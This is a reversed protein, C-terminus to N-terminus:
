LLSAGRRIIRCPPCMRGWSHRHCLWAQATSFTFASPADTDDSTWYQSFYYMMGADFRGGGGSCGEFLVDPFEATVTELIRYLGLMYRHAVEAQREPPLLASGVETMNRNMDWKVYSIKAKKLIDSLFSIIYECVDDRSLDLILQNRQESRGRDTVHLCWDPHSRYLDSDPSVMEPEFWLGFKMGLAEAKEALGDIGHPLKEATKRGTASRAITM